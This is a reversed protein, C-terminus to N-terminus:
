HHKPYMSLSYASPFSSSHCVANTGEWVSFLDQAGPDEDLWAKALLLRNDNVQVHPENSKITLQNRLATLGQPLPPM